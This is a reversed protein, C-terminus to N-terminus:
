APGYDFSESEQELRVHVSTGFVGALQDALTRMTEVHQRGYVRLVWRDKRRKQTMDLFGIQPRYKFIFWGVPPGLLHYDVTETPGLDKGFRTAVKITPHRSEIFLGVKKGLIQESEAFSTRQETEQVSM